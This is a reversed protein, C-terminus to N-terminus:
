VQNYLGIARDWQGLEALTPIMTSVSFKDARIGCELTMRDFLLVADAYRKHQRAGQLAVNFHMANLTGGKKRVLDIVALAEDVLGASIFIKMAGTIAAPSASPAAFDHSSLWSKTATVAPGWNQTKVGMDYLARFDVHTSAFLATTTLLTHLPHYPPTTPPYRGRTMYCQHFPTALLLLLLTLSGLM